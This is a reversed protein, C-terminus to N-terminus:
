EWCPASPAAPQHQRPQSIVPGAQPPHVPAVPGAQDRSLAAPGVQLQQDGATGGQLQLDRGPAPDEGHPPLDGHLVRLGRPPQLYWGGDLAPHGWPTPPGQGPSPTGMPSCTGGAVDGHQGGGGTGMCLDQLPPHADLPVGLEAELLGDEPGVDEVPVVLEAPLGLHLAGAAAATLVPVEARTPHPPPNYGPLPNPPQWGAGGPMARQRSEGACTGVAPRQTGLPVAPALPRLVALRTLIPSQGGGLSGWLGQGVPEELIEPFAGRGECTGAGNVGVQWRFGPGLSRRSRRSTGGRCSGRPEGSDRSQLGGSTGGFGQGM